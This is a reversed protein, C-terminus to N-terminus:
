GLEGMRRFLERPIQELQEWEDVNPVIEQQVFRSVTERFLENEVTMHMRESVESTM